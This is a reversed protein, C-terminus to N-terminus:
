FRCGHRTLAQQIRGNMAAHFSAVMVATTGQAAARKAFAPFPMVQDRAAEAAALCDPQMRDTMALDVAPEVVPRQRSTEGIDLRQPRVGFNGGEDAPQGFLRGVEMAAGFGMRSTYASSCPM